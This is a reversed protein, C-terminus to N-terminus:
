KKETLGLYVEGEEQGDLYHRGEACAIYLAGTEDAQVPCEQGTALCTFGADAVLVTGPTTTAIKAFETM